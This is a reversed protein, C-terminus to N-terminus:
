MGSARLSIQLVFPVSFSKKTSQFDPNRKGEAAIIQDVLVPIKTGRGTVGPIPFYYNPQPPSLGGIYFWPSVESAAALGMLYLEHWSYGYHYGLPAGGKATSFSGDANAVWYGGGM